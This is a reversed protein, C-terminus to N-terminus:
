SEEAKDSATSLDQSMFSVACTARKTQYIDEWPGFSSSRPNSGSEPCLKVAYYVLFRKKGLCKSGFYNLDHIQYDQQTLITLLM